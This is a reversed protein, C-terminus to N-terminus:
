NQSKSGEALAGRKEIALWKHGCFSRRLFALLFSITRTRGNWCYNSRCQWNKIFGLNLTLNLVLNLAFSLSLNSGLFNKIEGTQWPALADDWGDNQNDDGESKVNLHDVM